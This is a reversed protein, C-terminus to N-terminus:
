LRPGRRRPAGWIALVVIAELQEDLEFYAHSRTKPMLIRRVERGTRSRYRVGLTPSGALLDRLEALERAFLGPAKPRHARWWADMEEAQREAEPTFFVRM